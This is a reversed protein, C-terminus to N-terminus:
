KLSSSGSGILAASEEEVEKASLPLYGLHGQAIIEQGERSLVFRLFEATVPEIEARTYILLFRDLPYCGRRLSEGDLAVPDSERDPAIRLVKVDPTISVAAAFGIARSNNAVHRVVDRSQAFGRFSRAFAAEALVRNRMFEGLATDVSLGVPNLGRRDDGRFIERLEPLSLATLPNERHVVIALPGSLAVPALSAHAVRFRRPIGGRTLERYEAQQRASFEAGMPAFISQGRALAAPAARTGTLRLSFRLEPHLACFRETLAGLMEAMDNYGVIELAGEANLYAGSRPAAVPKSRYAPLRAAAALASPIPFFGHPDSAIESQGNESLAIRLWAEAEEERHPSVALYLLRTLPYSRTAIDESTGALYRGRSNEALPVARVGVKAYAFGSYGLACEDAAVAQVILDLSQPGGPVDVHELLDDRWARGALVRRELFNVIGPPNGDARRTRMGHVHIPRDGWVGTAGLQGWTHIEGSFIARLQQITLGHLPNRENVFIAIAHTAGKTARSGVAIPVMRPPVGALASLRQEESPFLERAFPAVAIEGRGLSEVLDASFRSRRTVVAPATPQSANYLAVWREM